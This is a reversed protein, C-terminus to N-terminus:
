KMPTQRIVASWTLRLRPLRSEQRIVAALWLYGCVVLLHSSYACSVVHCNKAIGNRFTHSTPSDSELLNAITVLWEQHTCLLYLVVVCTTNKTVQYLTPVGNVGYQRQRYFMWTFLMQEFILNFFVQLKVTLSTESPPRRTKSTTKLSRSSLNMNAIHWRRDTQRRDTTQPRDDTVNTCRVWAISIKPLIEIGHPVKAM